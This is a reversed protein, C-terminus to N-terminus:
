NVIKGPLLQPLRHRRAKPFLYFRGVDNVLPRRAGVTLLL